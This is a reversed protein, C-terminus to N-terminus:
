TVRDFHILPKISDDQRRAMMWFAHEIDDFGFEHTTM